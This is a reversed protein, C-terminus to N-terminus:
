WPSGIMTFPAWYFPHSFDESQQSVEPLEGLSINVSPTVITDGDDTKRTEGRLLNLQAQRLAEAKITDNRLQGYFSTMLALTGTDSVQWVSGLATKVGAQVALGAFGLEAMENGFATNCASLVLLEVGLDNLGLTRLENLNLRDNYLQIYSLDAQITNFEGHTGFHVIGYSNQSLNRRINDLTFSDSTFLDQRLQDEGQWVQSITPLEIGAAPLPTILQDEFTSAGMALLNRDALPSYDNDNLNISPTLSLSYKEVLYEDTKQDYLVALPLFRMENPLMFVLNEIERESLLEELPEMLWQYIQTADARYRDNQDFIDSVNLWLSNVSNSVDERSVPVTVRLPNGEATIILIDLETDDLEQVDTVPDINPVDNLVLSFENTKQAERRAMDDDLSIPQYNRPSFSVYIFGSKVGTKNEITTLIEKAQDISLILLSEEGNIPINEGVTPGYSTQSNSPDSQNSQILSSLLESQPDIPEPEPIPEPDPEPIPEPDPEPIPEPEPEPIPTTTPPPTPPTQPNLPEVDFSTTISGGASGSITVPETFSEPDDGGEPIRASGAEITGRTGNATDFILAGVNVDFTFDSSLLESYTISINGGSGSAGNSQLSVNSPEIEGLARFKNGTTISINGASLDSSADITNVVISGGGNLIINGSSVLSGSVINETTINGKSANISIGDADSNLSSSIIDQTEINQTFSTISIDGADGDSAESIINGTLINEEAEITIIGSNGMVGDTKSEIDSTEVNKGSSITINGGNGASSLSNATIQTTTINGGATLEINGGLLLGSSNIEEALIANNANVFINGGSSNLPPNIKINEGTLTISGGATVISSGTNINIDGLDNGDVDANFIINLFDTTSSPQISGNFNINGSAELTLTNNDDTEYSLIATDNWTINGQQTGGVGTSIKVDGSGLASKISQVPLIASDGEAVFSNDDDNINTLIGGDVIELNFPDILWEGGQGNFAKIDPVSTISFSKLGSTEIFGGDGAITGGTASLNGNIRAFDQAFIIVNGGDGQTIANASINSDPSIYTVSANPITGQGMMDGGIKINGGGTQGDATITSAIAGVNKGLITIEGGMGGYNATSITGSAIANGQGQPILSNNVRVEGDDVTVGEINSGTLLSPLNQPTFGVINGQEDKPFDVELSLLSGEPTIKVRSTGEVAQINIKGGSTEITGTNIVNGGVLSLNQGTSLTLNGQNIISGINDQSFVFSHPNGLLNQYDNSGIASFVGGDFGMGTATTATFDAPVNLSAGQGFIIGGPNMLFLNSNGGVVQLLGNIQSPNGGTIRTLINQIDPNTFFTAIQDSTLGFEQFSHFLNKGDASLTQGNILINNGDVTINTDTTRDIRIEQGYVLHPNFIVAGSLLSVILGWTKAVM